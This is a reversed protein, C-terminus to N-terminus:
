KCSCTAGRGGPEPQGVTEERGAEGGALDRIPGAGLVELVGRGIDTLLETRQGEGEQPALLLHIRCALFRFGQGPSAERLM